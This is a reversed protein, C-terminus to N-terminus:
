SASSNSLIEPWSGLAPNNMSLPFVLSSDNPDIYRKLKKGADRPEWVTRWNECFSSSSRATYRRM